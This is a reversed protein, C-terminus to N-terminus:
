DGGTDIYNESKAVGYKKFESVLKHESTGLYDSICFAITQVVPLFALPNLLENNANFVNLIREGKREENCTVLYAKNTIQKSAEYISYALDNTHDGNEMVLISYKPTLQLNPGHIFEELEFPICPIRVTESIKLSGEYATGYNSGFAVLCLIEMNSFGKINNEIFDVTKNVTTEHYAMVEIISEIINEYEDQKIKEQILASELAFLNLFTVLTTVGKTVYGVTEIGVGYDIVIDAHDKFDSEVNGTLGISKINNQNLTNLARIANTSYGTQSIVFVFEDEKINNEYENFTAPPIVEVKLQLIDEIFYRSCLASNYSSGSAVIVISTYDGKVFENVLIQTLQKSNNVNEIVVKPSELIYDMMSNKM